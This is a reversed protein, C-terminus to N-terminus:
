DLAGAFGIQNLIVLQFKVISSVFPPNFAYAHQVRKDPKQKNEKETM